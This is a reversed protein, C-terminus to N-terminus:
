DGEHQDELHKIREELLRIRTGAEDHWSLALHDRVNNTLQDVRATIIQVASIARIIAFSWGAFGAAVLGLLWQDLNSM